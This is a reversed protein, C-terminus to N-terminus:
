KSKSVQGLKEVIDPEFAFQSTPFKTVFATLRDDYNAGFLTNSDLDKGLLFKQVQALESTSPLNSTDTTEFFTALKKAVKPDDVDRMLELEIASTKALVTRFSALHVGGADLVRTTFGSLMNVDNVNYILSIGNVRTGEFEDKNTLMGSLVNRGPTLLGFWSRGSRGFTRIELENSDYSHRIMVVSKHVTKSDHASLRYAFYFGSFKEFRNQQNQQKDVEGRGLFWSDFEAINVGLSEALSQPTATLDDPHFRFRKRITPRTEAKHLKSRESSRWEALLINLTETLILISRPYPKTAGSFWRRISADSPQRRSGQESKLSESDLIDGWHHDITALLLRQFAGRGHDPYGSRKSFEIDRYGLAYRVLALNEEINGSAKQPM